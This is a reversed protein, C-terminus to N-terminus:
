ATFILIIGCVALVAGIVVRLTVKEKMLLATMPLIFLPTTSNLVVAVSADTYKLAVIFLWFGGFIVVFVSIFAFRLLKFDRFPSLTSKLKGTAATWFFLGLLAGLFRIFTAELASISAVGKKALIIGLSMCLASLLGYKLGAFWNEKIREKPAGEWLVWTVGAFTIIIGIWSRLSPHERLFIVSLFVTFAPGLTGLLITLRPGLYMLAKFFLTDGFAIGLLGSAGLMIFVRSNLPEIGSALVALGLYLIGIIGKILNIGLPSVRDGLKRFLISGYAWAAASTLAAAGGLIGLFRDSAIM